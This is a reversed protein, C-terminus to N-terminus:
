LGFRSNIVKKINLPICLESFADGGKQMVDNKSEKSIKNSEIVYSKASILGHNFKLYIEYYKKLDSKTKETYKNWDSTVFGDYIEAFDSM